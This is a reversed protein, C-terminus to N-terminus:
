GGFFLCLATLWGGWRSHQADQQESALALSDRLQSIEAQGLELMQEKSLVLDCTTQHQDQLQSCSREAQDARVAEQQLRTELARVQGPSVTLPACACVPARGICVRSRSIFSGSYTIANIPNM